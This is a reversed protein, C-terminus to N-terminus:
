LQPRMKMSNGRFWPECIKLPLCILVTLVGHANAESLIWTTQVGSIHSKPTTLLLVM